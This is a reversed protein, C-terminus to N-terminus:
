RGCSHNWPLPRLTKADGGHILPAHLGIIIPHRTHGKTKKKEKEM